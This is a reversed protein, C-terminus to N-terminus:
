SRFSAAGLTRAFCGFTDMVKKSKRVPISGSLWDRDAWQLALLKGKRMGTPLVTLVVLRVVGRLTKLLTTFEDRTLYRLRRHDRQFLRIGRAPNERVMKGEVACSFMQRLLAM